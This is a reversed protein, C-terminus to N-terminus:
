NEYVQKKLASLLELAKKKYPEVTSYMAVFALNGWQQKDMSSFDIQDVGLKGLNNALWSENNVNLVTMPHAFRSLEKESLIAMFKKDTGNRNGNFLNNVLAVTVATVASSIIINKINMKGAM